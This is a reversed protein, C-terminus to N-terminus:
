FQIDDIDLNQLDDIKWGTQDKIMTMEITGSFHGPNEFSLMVTASQKGKQIDTVECQMNEFYHELNESQGTMQLIGALYENEAIKSFTTVKELANETLHSELGELGEENVDRVTQILAYEPTHVIYIGAAVLATLLVIIIVLIIKGAKKM